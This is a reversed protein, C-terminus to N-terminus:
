CFYADVTRLTEETPEELRSVVLEKEQAMLLDYRERCDTPLADRLSRLRAHISQFTIYLEDKPLM